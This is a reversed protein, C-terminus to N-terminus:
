GEMYKYFGENLMDGRTRLDAEEGLNDWEVKGGGIGVGLILRGKSLLDLTVTERALKQPRRRPLPTVTTGLKIFETQLAAAALAVWPDACLVTAGTERIRDHSGM